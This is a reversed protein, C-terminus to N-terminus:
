GSALGDSGRRVGAPVPTIYPVVALFACEHSVREESVVNRHEWLSPDVSAHKNLVPVRGLVFAEHSAAVAVWLPQREDGEEILSKM